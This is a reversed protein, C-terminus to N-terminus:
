RTQRLQQGVIVGEARFLVPVLRPDHFVTYPRQWHLTLAQEGNPLYSNQPQGKGTYVLIWSPPAIALDPFWFVNDFLPYAGAQPNPLGVTLGFGSVNIPQTPRLVIRELNPKGPDAVGLLTLEHTILSPYAM